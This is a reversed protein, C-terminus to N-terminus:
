YEQGFSGYQRLFAYPGRQTSEYRPAAYRPVDYRPPVAARAVARPRKVAGKFVPASAPAPVAQAANNELAQASPPDSTTMRPSEALAAMAPPDQPTLAVGAENTASPAISAHAAVAAVQPVAMAPSESRPAQAARASHLPQQATRQAERALQSPEASLVLTRAAVSTEAAPRDMLSFVVAASATAGIVVAVVFVRATRLLNPAPSLYGWEPNFNGVHRM